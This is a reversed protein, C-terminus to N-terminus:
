CESRLGSFKSGRSLASDPSLKPSGNGPLFPQYSVNSTWHFLSPGTGPGQSTKLAFCPDWPCQPGEESMRERGGRKVSESPAANLHSLFPCWYPSAQVPSQPTPPVHWLVRQDSHRQSDWLRSPTVSSSCMILKVTM